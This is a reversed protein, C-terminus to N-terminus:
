AGKGALAKGRCHISWLPYGCQDDSGLAMEAHQCHLQRASIMRIWGGACESGVDRASQRDDCVLPSHEQFSNEEMTPNLPFLACVRQGTSSNDITHTVSNMLRLRKQRVYAAYDIKGKCDQISMRM